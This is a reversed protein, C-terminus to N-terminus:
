MIGNLERGEREKGRWRGDEGGLWCICADNKEDFYACSMMESERKWDRRGSASKRKTKGGGWRENTAEWGSEYECRDSEGRM